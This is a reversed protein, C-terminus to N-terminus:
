RLGFRSAGGEVVSSVSTPQEPDTGSLWLTVVQGAALTAELLGEERRLNAGATGIAAGGFPDLLRLHREVAARIRVWTTRGDTRVASVRLAGETLLDRFAVDRWHRPLAPFVRLTDGWGQVLMDCIGQALGCNAEITFPLTESPIRELPETLRYVTMGCHDVDRNYHLGNPALWHDLLQRLFEEAMGGRGVVAAMSVLQAYSHGAWQWQGLACYRDLSANLTRRAEDGGDITLDMAPHVAMLHSPHRHSEDLPKGPWLCLSGDADLAYPALTDHVRTATATLDTLGLASEMERVWDCCRCILALDINPDAAWAELRNDHYEPSSSLPVHLRGDDGAVLNAAYFRLVDAVLPYGTEALWARDMSHRWRLWVLWALWGGNSWAFQVPGWCPVLTYDPLSSCVWFSGETGFFGRTFDRCRDLSARMADCWCDLLDLHGSGCAPWFTEQVNMDAHYDGRWPPIAGDLAWLGQLGPPISGRRACSALLYIGFYWMLEADADPLSVASGAWLEAWAAVHSRLLREHGTERAARCTDIARREAEDATAGSESALYLTAGTRAWAVAHALGGPISQVLVGFGDREGQVPALHGLGALAPCSEGLPVLRLEAGDPWPDLHLCVVNSERSVFCQLRHKGDGTRLTGEFLGRDIDLACEYDTIPGIPLEARGISVKTPGVPNDRKQREEFVEAVDAARGEAVMQKLHAYDFEPQERYTTNERLDWLDARDLTLCLQGERGWLMAGLEGNGLPSGEHWAAPPRRHIVRHQTAEAM